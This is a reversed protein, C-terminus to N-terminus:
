RRQFRPDNEILLPPDFITLTLAIGVTIGLSGRKVLSMHGFEAYDPVRCLPTVEVLDGDTPRGM